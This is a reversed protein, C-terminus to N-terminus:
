GVEDYHYFKGLEGGCVDGKLFEINCIKPKMPLILYSEPQFATVTMLKPPDQLDFIQEERPCAPTELDLM